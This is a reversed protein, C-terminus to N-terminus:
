FQSSQLLQIVIDQKANLEAKNELFYANKQKVDEAFTEIQTKNSEFFSVDIPYPPLETNSNEKAAKRLQGIKINPNQGAMAQMAQVLQQSGQFAAQVKNYLDESISAIMNASQNLLQLTQGITMEDVESQSPFLKAADEIKFQIKYEDVSWYAEILKAAQPAESMLAYFFRNGGLPLTKAGAEQVQQVVGPNATFSPMIPMMRELTDRSNGPIPYGRVFTAYQHVLLEAESTFSDVFRPEDEGELQFQLGDEIRSLFRKELKQRIRPDDVMVPHFNQMQRRFNVGFSRSAMAQIASVRDLGIGVVDQPEIDGKEMDFRFDDVPKGFSTVTLAQYHKAISPDQCDKVVKVNFKSYLEDRIQTLDKVYLSGNTKVMACHLDPTFALNVFFEIVKDSAAKYNAKQDSGSSSLSDLAQEEIKIVEEISMGEFYKEGRGLQHNLILRWEDYFSILPKFFREDNQLNILNQLSPNFNRFRDRKFYVMHYQGNFQEIYNEVVEVPTTGRDWRNCMPSKGLSADQDTCYLYPKNEGKLQAEISQNTDINILQGNNKEVKNGYVFRIWAIDYPMLESPREERELPYDMVTSFQSMQEVGLLHTLAFNAKDVSGMFNHRMGMNHGVEHIAVSSAIDILLKSACLELVEIENSLQTQNVSQATEIYAEVEPCNHKIGEILKQGSVLSQSFYEEYRSSHSSVGLTKKAIELNDPTIKEIKFPEGNRNQAVIPVTLVKNMLSGELISDFQTNSVLLETSSIVGLSELVYTRIAAAIGNEISSVFINATASIIEGTFPDSFSPGIGGLGSELDVTDLLNLVNYRSDGLDVRTTDLRVRIPVGAKQFGKDWESITKEAIPIYKDPTMNSLHYVIERRRPDHRIMQIDKEFDEDRFRKFSSLTPKINAFVGFIDHDEKFYRRAQYTRENARLFSFRIKISDNIVTFSRYDKAIKLDVLRAERMFVDKSEAKELNIKFFRNESWVRKPKPNESLSKDIGLNPVEYDLWRIVPISMVTRLNLEDKVIREDAAISVVTITNQGPIFKVKDSASIGAEAGGTDANMKDAGLITFSYYWEGDFLNSPFVDIKQSAEFLERSEWNIRFHTAESRDAPVELLTSTKEDDLNKQHEITFYSVSYALLPVAIEGSENVTSYTKEVFPITNENGIKIFKIFNPTLEVQIKYKTAEKGRIPADAIMQKLDGKANTTYSVLDYGFLNLDPDNLKKSNAKLDANLLSQGTTLDFSTGHYDSIRKLRKGQNQAFKEPRKEATCGFSFGIVLLCLIM